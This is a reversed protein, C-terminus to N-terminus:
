QRHNKRNLQRQQDNKRKIMEPKTPQKKIKLKKRKDPLNTTPLEGIEQDQDMKKTSHRFPTIDIISSLEHIM